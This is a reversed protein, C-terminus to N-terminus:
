KSNTINKFDKVAKSDRAFFRKIKILLRRTQIKM